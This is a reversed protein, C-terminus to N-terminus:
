QKIIQGAGYVEFKSNLTNSPTQSYYINGKGYVKLGLINKANVYSNELSFSTFYTDDSILNRNDIFSIDDANGRFINCKGRLIVGGTNDGRVNIDNTVINLVVDELGDHIIKLDNKQHITDNATFKASGRVSLSDISKFYIVVKQRVKLKRVWNFKNSNEILLVGNEVTTTYGDIVNSGATMEITGEKASDQKLEIDFKEGASIVNFATVQRTETTESGYSKFLDDGHKCANCLIITTLLIFSKKV